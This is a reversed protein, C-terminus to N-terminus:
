SKQQAKEERKGQESYYVCGFVIAFVTIGQAMIRARMMLQSQRFDGRLMARLGLTLAAVTGMMGLPVVPNNMAKASFESREYIHATNQHHGRERLHQQRAAAAAASAAKTGHRSAQRVWKLREEMPVKKKNESTM